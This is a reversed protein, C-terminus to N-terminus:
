VATLRIQRANASWGCRLSLKLSDLSRSNSTIVKGQLPNSPLDGVLAADQNVKTTVKPNQGSCGFMSLLLAAGVFYIIKIQGSM